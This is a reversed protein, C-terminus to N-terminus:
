AFRLLSKRRLQECYMALMNYYHTVCGEEVPHAPGLRQHGFGNEVLTRRGLEVSNCLVRDESATVAYAAMLARVLEPNRLLTAESVYWEVVNRCGGKAIPVFTSVVFIHEDEVDTPYWEFTTNPGFIMWVAGYRPTNGGRLVLDRYAKYEACVKTTDKRWGVFQISWHTSMELWLKMMDVLQDFSVKHIDGVHDTDGFIEMATLASFTEISEQVDYLVTGKMEFPVIGLRKLSPSKMVDQLMEAADHGAEFLLGDFQELAVTNLKLCPLTEGKKYAPAFILTGQEDYTYRHWHCVMSGNPTLKGDRTVPNGNVEEGVPVLRGNRHPCTNLAARIGDPHRSLVHADGTSPTTHRSNVTPLMAENGLLKPTAAIIDAFTVGGFNATVLEQMTPAFNQKM